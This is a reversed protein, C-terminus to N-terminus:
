KRMQWAAILKHIHIAKEWESGHEEDPNLLKPRDKDVGHSLTPLMVRSTGEKDDDFDLLTEKNTIYDNGFM